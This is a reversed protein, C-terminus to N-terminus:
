HDCPLVGDVARTGALRASRPNGLPRPRPWGVLVYDLRRRPWAADTCYPNAESWTHGPGDGAVEWADQFVLGPVPPASRGTLARVEDSDPVANLDGGVIPPFDKAPDGRHSAVFLSLARVQNLRAASADFSWDLHTCYVSLRGGPRDLEARLVSRYPPGGAWTPLWRTESSVIPFRSLIANHFSIGRRHPAARDTLVAHLGLREGLRTAQDEDEAGWVEQLCVVDPAEAALVSAIADERAEWPGFRAWLNWTMITVV